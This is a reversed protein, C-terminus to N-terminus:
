AEVSLLRRHTQLRNNFDNIEISAISACTKIPNLIKMKKITTINDHGTFAM